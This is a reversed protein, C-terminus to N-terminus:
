EEDRKIELIADIIESTKKDYGYKADEKVLVCCIVRLKADNRLLEEYKERTIIVGNNM